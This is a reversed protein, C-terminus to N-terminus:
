PYSFSSSLFYCNPKWRCHVMETVKPVEFGLQQMAAAVHYVLQSPKANSIRKNRSPRSLNRTKICSVPWYKLSAVGSTIPSIGKKTRVGYRNPKSSRRSSFWRPITQIQHPPLNKEAGQQVPIPRIAGKVPLSSVAHM